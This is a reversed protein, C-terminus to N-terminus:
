RSSFFVLFYFDFVLLFQGIDYLFAFTHHPHVHFRIIFSSM